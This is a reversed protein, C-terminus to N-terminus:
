WLPFLGDLERSARVMDRLGVNKLLLKNCQMLGCRAWWTSGPISRRLQQRLTLPGRQSVSLRVASQPM